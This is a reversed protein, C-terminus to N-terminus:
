KMLKNWILAGAVCAATILAAVGASGKQHRSIYKTLKRVKSGTTRAARLTRARLRKAPKSARSVLKRTSAHM